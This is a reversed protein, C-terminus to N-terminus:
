SFLYIVVGIIVLGGLLYFIMNGAAKKVKEVMALRLMKLLIEDNRTTDGRRKVESWDLNSVPKRDIERLILVSYTKMGIRFSYLCRPDFEHAKDKYIILNGAYLPLLQPSELKSNATLYLVLVKNHNHKRNSRNMTAKWRFPINWKKKKKKTEEKIPGYKVQKEIEDLRKTLSM